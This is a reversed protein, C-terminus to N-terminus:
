RTKLHMGHWPPGGGTAPICKLVIHSAAFVQQMTAASAATLASRTKEKKLQYARADYAACHLHISECEAFFAVMAAKFTFEGSSIMEALVGFM